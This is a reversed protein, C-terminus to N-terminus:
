EDKLYGSHSTDTELLNPLNALSDITAWPQFTLEQETKTGYGTRVLVDRGGLNRGLLLDSAKDGVYVAQAPDFAHSAAAELVLGGAPKRTNSKGEPGDPSVYWGAIVIGYDALLADIRANVAAVEELTFMGRAVGSQNTVVIFRWGNKALNQLASGAGPILEVLDPDSLYHKEVILTGDRDLVLIKTSLM